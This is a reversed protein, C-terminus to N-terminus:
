REYCQAEEIERLDSLMTHYLTTLEAAADSEPLLILYSALGSLLETQMAACRDPSAQEATASPPLHFNKSQSLVPLPVRIM